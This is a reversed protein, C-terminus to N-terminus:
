PTTLLTDYTLDINLTGRRTPYLSPKQQQIDLKSYKMKIRNKQYKLQKDKTHCVSSADIKVYMTTHTVKQKIKTKLSSGAFQHYNIFTM